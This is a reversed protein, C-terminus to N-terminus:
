DKKEEGGEMVRRVRNVERSISEALKLVRDYDGHEIAMSLEFYRAALREALVYFNKRLLTYRRLLNEYLKELRKFSRLDHIYDIVSIRHADVVDLFLM